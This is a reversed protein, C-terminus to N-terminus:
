APMEQAASVDPAGGTTLALLRDQSLNRAAVEDVVQGRLLVVIRDCLGILEAPDSSSVLVGAGDRALNEVLQYIEVKAGIDVGVTPEDLIFLKSGTALWRALVVKQQNGGSLLRTITKPNRPRIDITDSLKEARAAAQSRQELAAVAVEELSALNVNDTMTMDLVLGDHRRDRPVLVMGAAVAHPPSAPRLTEGDVEVRGATAPRLGYITDTLEERGSGILGAIGIIEGRRVELNVDAFKQGDSLDVARLVTEAPTHQKEPYLASIERGVMAGIIQNTKAGDVEDFVAVDEGNRFVTVRDCIDTIESLYHSVYIMAIGRERLRRIARFLEEVEGSALPATPEDFVVLKARNDILARAIQVLKREAIGLDRILAKGSIRAHLSDRLFAEAQRRMDVSRLGLRGSVEQGMFVSEAVTFHPVLHLEQHIFRVGADHVARPTVSQIPQGDIAVSGSDAGYVGALVKIMTSKGAGNEGVLGHVEGPLVTLSADDLAQVGPFAKSVGQMDLVTAGM